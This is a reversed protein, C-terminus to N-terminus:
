DSNWWYAEDGLAVKEGGGRQKVVAAFDKSGQYNVSVSLFDRSIYDEKGEAAAPGISFMCVTIPSTDPHTLPSDTLTSKGIATQVVEGIDM